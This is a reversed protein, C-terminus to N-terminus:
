YSYVDVFKGEDYMVFVKFLVALTTSNLHDALKRRLGSDPTQIGSVENTRNRM